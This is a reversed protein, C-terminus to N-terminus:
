HRHHLVGGSPVTLRSGATRPQLSYTDVSDSTNACCNSTRITSNVGSNWSSCTLPESTHAPISPHIGASQKPGCSVSPDLVLASKERMMTGSQYPPQCPGCDNMTHAHQRNASMLQTANHTLHMRSVFSNTLGNNSRHLNNMHCNPRYDTFHRGDDMRPPCNAYKNNSTKICGTKHCSM